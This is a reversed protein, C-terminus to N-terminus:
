RLELLADLTRREELLEQRHHDDTASEFEAMQHDAFDPDWEIRLPQTHRAGDVSLVVRYTGPPVRAATRGPVARGDRDVPPDTRMDWTVRHLGADSSPVRLTRVPSGDLETITLEIEKAATALSYFVQATTPPAEARFYRAGSVGRAPEARWLHATNPRYLHSAAKVIDPTIQRLTTADMVWLSRGHTGAVIEGNTPHQAFEHVAVTPLNGNLRTWDKGRNISAFCAFETGVYLLDPRTIDERITRVSGHKPLNATIDSWTRGFDESVFIYPADDNSRHGDFAIYIRGAVFRSAELAAVHMPTPVLDILPKGTPQAERAPRRRATPRQSAAPETAPAAAPAAPAEAVAPTASRAAEFPVSLLGEQATISGRLRDGELKAELRGQGVPTDIGLTLASDAARFAGDRVAGSLADSRMEGLVTGDENLRFVLRFRDTGAPMEVLIGGVDKDGLIEAAGPAVDGGVKGLV